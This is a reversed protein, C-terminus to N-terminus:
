KSPPHPDLKFGFGFWKGLRDAKTVVDVWWQTATAQALCGVCPPSAGAGGGVIGAWGGPHPSFFACWALHTRSSGKSQGQCQERGASVVSCGSLPRPESNLSCKMSSDQPRGRCSSGAELESPYRSM